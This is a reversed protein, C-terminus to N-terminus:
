ELRPGREGRFIISCDSAVTALDDVPVTDLISFRSGSPPLSIQLLPVQTLTAPLRGGLLRSLSLRSLCGERELDLWVPATALPSPLSLPRVPVVLAMLGLALGLPTPSLRSQRWSMRHWPRLDRPRPPLLARLDRTACRGLLALLCPLFLRWGCV